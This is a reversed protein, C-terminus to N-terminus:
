LNIMMLIIQYFIFLSSVLPISLTVTDDTLNHEEWGDLYEDDDHRTLVSIRDFVDEMDRVWCKKLVEKSARQSLLPKVGRRSESLIPDPFKGMLDAFCERALGDHDYDKPDPFWGIYETEVSMTFSLPSIATFYGYIM